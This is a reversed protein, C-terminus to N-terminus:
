EKPDGNLEFLRDIFDNRFLGHPDWKERLQNFEEIRPLVKKLQSM